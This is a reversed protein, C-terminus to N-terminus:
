FLGELRYWSELLCSRHHAGSTNDTMPFSISSSSSSSVNQYIGITGGFYEEIQDPDKRVKCIAERLPRLSDERLLEYQASLYAELCLDTSACYM